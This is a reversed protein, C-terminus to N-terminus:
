SALRNLMIRISAIYVMTEASDSLVEYDINLRRSWQLWGFTREIIWRKPVVQFGSGKLTASIELQCQHTALLWLALEGQYAADAWIMKISAFWFFVVQLVAFAQTSDSLNADHVTVNLPFGLTDVVLHRKRGKVKKHGDFGRSEAVKSTKVSQTDIIAGTPEPQKGAKERVEQHLAQHLLFWTGDKKWKRFLYYVRHWPPLDHPILRWQCGTYVVYNMGNILERLESKKPCGAGKRKDLEYKLIIEWQLDTLDTKYKQREM